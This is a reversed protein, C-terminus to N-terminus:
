CSQGYRMQGLGQQMWHRALPLQLDGFGGLGSQLRSLMQLMQSMQSECEQRMHDDYRDFPRDYQDALHQPAYGQQYLRHARHDNGRQQDLRTLDSQDDVIQGNSQDIMNGKRDIFVRSPEYHGFKGLAREAMFDGAYSSDLPKVDFPQPGSIGTVLAGTGDPSRVAVTDVFDAEGPRPAGGRGNGMLVKVETGDKLTMFIDRKITGIERGNKSVHPDEFLKWDVTQETGDANQIRVSRDAKNFTLKNSGATVVASTPTQAGIQTQARHGNEWRCGKPDTRYCHPDRDKCRERIQHCNQQVYQQHRECGCNHAHRRIKEFCPESPPSTDIAGHSRPNFTSNLQVM